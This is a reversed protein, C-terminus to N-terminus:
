QLYLVKQTQRFDESEVGVIYIGSAIQEGQDNKANWTLTNEGRSLVDGHNLVIKGHIDTITLNYKQQANSYNDVVFNVQNNFPNPYPSELVFGAPAIENEDIGSPIVVLESNTLLLFQNWEGTNDQGRVWVELLYNTGALVQVTAEARYDIGGRHEIEMPFGSGEGPDDDVTANVNYDFWCEAAVLTRSSDESWVKFDSSITVNEGNRVINPNLSLSLELNEPGNVYLELQSSSTDAMDIVKIFHLGQMLSVPITTMINGPNMIAIDPLQMPISVSDFNMEGDVVYALPDTAGWDHTPPMAPFLVGDNNSDRWLWLEVTDGEAALDMIQLWLLSNYDKFATEPEIEFASVCIPLIFLFLLIKKM